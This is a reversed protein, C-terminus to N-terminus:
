HSDCSIVSPNRIKSYTCLEKRNEGEGYFLRPKMLDTYPGLGEVTVSVLSGGLTGFRPKVEIIRPQMVGM